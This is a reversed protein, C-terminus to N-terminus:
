SKEIKNGLAIDQYITKFILNGNQDLLLTGGEKGDIHRIPETMEELDLELEIVGIPRSSSDSDLITRSAYIKKNEIRWITKFNNNVAVDYLSIAAGKKLGYGISANNKFTNM